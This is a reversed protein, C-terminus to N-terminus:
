GSANERLLLAEVFDEAEFVRLDDIGEGIGIYRIPLATGPLPGGHSVPSYEGRRERLWRPALRSRYRQTQVRM